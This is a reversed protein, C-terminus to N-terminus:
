KQEILGAAYENGNSCASSANRQRMKVYSHEEGRQLVLRRNKLPLFRGYEDDASKCWLRTRTTRTNRRVNGIHAM